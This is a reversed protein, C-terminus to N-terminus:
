PADVVLAGNLERIRHDIYYGGYETYRLFPRACQVCQWVECRNYPFYGLAIPAQPSDYRTGDPHYEEVTPEDYADGGAVRGVRRLMSEDFTSSVTEWGPCHLRACRCGALPVYAAALARIGSPSLTPATGGSSNSSSSMGAGASLRAHRGLDEGGADM